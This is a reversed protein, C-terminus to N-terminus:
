GDRRPGQFFIYPYVDIPLDSALPRVQEASEECSVYIGVILTSSVEDPILAEACMQGKHHYQETPDGPHTWWEAFVREADIMELGQPFPEWRTWSRSANRDTIVVDPRRLVSPDIRLVSLCRHQGQRLFMMPNRANFYLNVYEHLRRGRPVTTKDRREQVEANSVDAHELRAVRAHSLVGHALISKLNLLPAIYHLEALDEFKV